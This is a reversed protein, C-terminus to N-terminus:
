PRTTAASGICEFVDCETFGADAELPENVLHLKITRAEELTMPLFAGGPECCIEHDGQKM